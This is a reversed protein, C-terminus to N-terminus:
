VLVYILWGIMGSVVLIAAAIVAMGRYLKARDVNSQIERLEMARRDSEGLELDIQDIPSLQATLVAPRDVYLRDGLEFLVRDRAAEADGAARDVVKRKAGIAELLESTRRQDETEATQLALKKKQAENRAAELAAIRPDLADLEAAIQPEDRQVSQLDAKHTAIEALVAARDPKPGRVSVLSAQSESIAKEIRRISDRLESSRKKIVAAEKELPELKKAISTLEADLASIDIVYQKAKAERDRRVRDLEADAAAVSGMHLSREEEVSGLLERAKGVAPHDFSDTIVATRGLTVLHRRRSLQRTDQRRELEVLELRARRMGFWATSVYLADGLIGRQRRLAAANRLTGGSSPTRHLAPSQIATADAREGITPDGREFPMTKPDINTPDGRLKAATEGLLVEVPTHKVVTRPASPIGLLAEAADRKQTAQAYAARLKAESTAADFEGVPVALKSVHSPSLEPITASDDILVAAPRSGAPSPPPSPSAPRPPRDASLPLRQSIPTSNPIAGSQLQVSPIAPASGSKNSPPPSATVSGGPKQPLQATPG